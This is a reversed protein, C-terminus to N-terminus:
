AAAPVVGSKGGGAAAQFAKMREARNKLIDNHNM